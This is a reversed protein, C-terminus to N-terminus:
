LGRIALVLVRAVQVAQANDDSTVFLLRRGDSLTPGLSLGEYNDLIPNPQTSPHTFGESPLTALDVVLQKQLAATDAGLAAVSSVDAAGAVSVRFLRVTNGIDSQYGGSSCWSRKTTM